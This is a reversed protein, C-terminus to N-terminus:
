KFSSRFFVKMSKENQMSNGSKIYTVDDASFIERALFLSIPGLQFIQMLSFNQEIIEIM